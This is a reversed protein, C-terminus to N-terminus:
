LTEVKPLVPRRVLCDVGHAVAGLLMEHARCSQFGDSEISTCLEAGRSYAHAAHGRKPRTPRPYCAMEIMGKACM